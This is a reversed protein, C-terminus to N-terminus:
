FCCQGRGHQGYPKPRGQRGKLSKGGQLVVIPKEAKKLIDFFRRGELVSELYLGVVRTDPDELLYALVDSENVDVKNGISCVKSIGTKDRTMTDMLFGASLMGSQVILSIHGPLLGGEWIVPSVFSFVRHNVADVLGMCNPGWIRIGSDRSIESLRDQLIKGKSATEAFGASQIMVGPIGRKACDGVLEPAKPAPVFIIALDAPDPINLVSDYCPLGAIEDYRPNVPYIKGGFGNMLNKLLSFGVKREDATAGILAIGAPKFFFEM